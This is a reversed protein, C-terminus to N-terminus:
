SVVDAPLADPAFVDAYSKEGRCVESCSFSGHFCGVKFRFDKCECFGSLGNTIEFSCPKDELVEREGNPSCGSTQKWGSCDDEDKFLEDENEKIWIRLNDIIHDPVGDDLGQEATHIWRHCTIAGPANEADCPLWKEEPSDILPLLVKSPLAVISDSSKHIEKFDQFFDTLAVPGTSYVARDDRDRQFYPLYVIFTRWFNHEKVSGMIANSLIRRGGYHWASHEDPETCFFIKTDENAEAILSNFSTKCETDLDLYWGGYKYLIFYRASDARQLPTTYAEFVPMFWPHEASIFDYIDNDTWMVWVYDDNIRQCHISYFRLLPPITRTKWTQHIIKPFGKNVEVDELHGWRKKVLENPSNCKPCPKAKLTEDRRFPINERDEKPALKEAFQEFAPDTKKAVPKSVHPKAAELSITYLGRLAIFLLFFSIGGILFTVPRNLRRTKSNDDNITVDISRSLSEITRNKRKSLVFTKATM